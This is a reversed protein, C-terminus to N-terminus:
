IIYVCRWRHHLLRVLTLAAECPYHNRKKKFMKLPELVNALKLFCMSVNKVNFYLSKLWNETKMHYVRSNLFRDTSTFPSFLYLFPIWHPLTYFYFLVFLKYIPIVTNGKIWFYNTTTLSLLVCKQAQIGLCNELFLVGSFNLLLAANCKYM